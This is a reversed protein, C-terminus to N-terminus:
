LVTKGKLRNDEVWLPQLNSYHFCKRQESEKSLDFSACPRIHDIEWGNRGYNNWSMDSTFKSELYQKLFELSCGVLKTTTELKPNGKLVQNLRSRLNNLLRFNLDKNRKQNQYDAIRKKHINKYQKYKEKNNKYYNRLYEKRLEKHNKLYELAYKSSCEKCQSRLKDKKSEDKSFYDESKAQKCSKCFKMNEM